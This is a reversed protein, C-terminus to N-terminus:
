LKNKISDALAADISLDAAVTPLFFGAGGGTGKEEQEEHLNIEHTEEKFQNHTV